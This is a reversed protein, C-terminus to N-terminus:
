IMTLPYISSSLFRIGFLQCEDKFIVDVQCRKSVFPNLGHSAMICALSVDCAVCQPHLVDVRVYAPTRENTDRAFLPRRSWVKRVAYQEWSITCALYLLNLRPTRTRTKSSRVSYICTTGSGAVSCTFSLREALCSYFPSLSASGSPRWCPCTEIGSAFM